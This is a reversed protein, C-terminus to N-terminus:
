GEKPTNESDIYIEETVCQASKLIERAKKVEEDESDQLYKLAKTVEKFLFDYMAQYDAPNGETEKRMNRLMDQMLLIGAQLGIETYTSATEGSLENESTEYDRTNENPELGYLLYDTIGRMTARKFIEQSLGM